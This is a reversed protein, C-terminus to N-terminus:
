GGCGVECVLVFGNWGLWVMSGLWMVLPEEEAGVVVVHPLVGLLSWKLMGGCRMRLCLECCGCTMRGVSSGGDTGDM